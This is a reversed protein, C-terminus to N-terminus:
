GFLWDLKLKADEAAQPAIEEGAGAHSITQYEGTAPDPDRHIIVSRRPLDIVWYERIGVSAYLALKIGRDRALSSEAVEIILLVDDPTPHQKQYFDNRKRLLQFDPEPESDDRTAQPGQNRCTFRDGLERIFFFSLKDTVSIHEPGIPTMTLIEGNILEVRDDETLVGSELMRAYDERTFRKRWDPEVLTPQHTSVAAPDPRIM